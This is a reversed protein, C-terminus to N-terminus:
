VEKQLEGVISSKVTVDRVLREQRLLGPSDMVRRSKERVTKLTAEAAFERREL